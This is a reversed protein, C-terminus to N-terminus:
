ESVSEKVTYYAYEGAYTYYISIKYNISDVHLEIECEHGSSSTDAEDMALEKAKIWADEVTEFGDVINDEGGWSNDIYIVYKGM